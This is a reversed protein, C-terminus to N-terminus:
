RSIPYEKHISPVEEGHIFAQVEPHESQRIEDPTGVQIIKGEILIGVRDSIKFVSEMDHSIVLSTASYRDRTKLILSNINNTIVPDLGTTPEDYLIISPNEALARALGVRKQMGGSLEEPMLKDTGQMDVDALKEAVYQALHKGRMGGRRYRLPFAVNEFVNLSDFLAARQFVMGLKLRVRRYQLENYKTVDEGDIYVRGSKASIFGIVLRLLTSKGSGSRGIVTFIEGPMVSMSVGDLIIKEGYGAVVDELEIAPTSPDHVNKDNEKRM